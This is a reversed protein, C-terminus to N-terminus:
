MQHKSLEKGMQACETRGVMLYGTGLDHAAIKRTDTLRLALTAEGHKKIPNAAGAEDNPGKAITKFMGPVGRPCGVVVKHTKGAKVNPDRITNPAKTKVAALVM